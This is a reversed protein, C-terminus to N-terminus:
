RYPANEILHKNIENKTPLRVMDIPRVRDLHWDIYGLATFDELCDAMPWYGWKHYFLNCNKIISELNNLPPVYLVHQQHYVEADTLYFPIGAHKAKLAFDTDEAGYGEYGEDFGNIRNFSTKPISFCLSWFVEYCNQPIVGYIIPRLPHHVSKKRLNHMSLDPKSGSLMYRPTGMILSDGVQHNADLMKECYRISPICDVDLFLLLDTSCNNAGLNRASGVPLYQWKEDYNLIRLVFPLEQQRPINGGMNVVIVEMPLITQLALGKLTNKLNLNREFNTIIVSFKRM